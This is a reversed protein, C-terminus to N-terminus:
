VIRNPDGKEFQFLFAPGHTREDILTINELDDKVVFPGGEEIFLLGGPSLLASKDLFSLIEEIILPTKVKKGPGLQYPPDVYIISFSEGKKELKKLANLYDYPIVDTEKEVNLNKINAKLAAIAPYSSDIFVAKKAGRSIAELGMAGSGSFVDLFSAGEIAHQCINFLAQRLKASTPRTELGTPAKLTRNKFRGGIIQM